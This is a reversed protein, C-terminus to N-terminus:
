SAIAEPARRGLQREANAIVFDMETLGENTCEDHELIWWVNAMIEPVRLSDWVMGGQMLCTRLTLPAHVAKAGPPLWLVQGPEVVIVRM